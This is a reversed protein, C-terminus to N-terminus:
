GAVEEVLGAFAIATSDWSFLSARARAKMSLEERMGANSVLELIAKSIAAPDMPDVLLAGDGAVEELATGRSALVPCGAAMAEVVPLGFGESISPSLFALCDSYLERLRDEGVASLLEVKSELELAELKGLLGPYARDRRVVMVLRPLARGRSADAYAELLRPLNKYARANGVYLLFGGDRPKPEAGPDFLDQGEYVVRTKAAAGPFRARVREQVWCSPVVVAAAAELSRRIIHGFWAKYLRNRVPSDGFYGPLELVMLDHIMFISPIGAWSPGAMSLCCYVDPSIRSVARSLRRKEGPLFRPAPCNELRLGPTGALHHSSGDSVLLTTEWGPRIRAMRGAVAATLRGIGDLEPQLARGDLLLRM